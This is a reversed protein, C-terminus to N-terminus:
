ICAPLVLPVYQEVEECEEAYAEEDAYEENM